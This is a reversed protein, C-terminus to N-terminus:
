HYSAVRIMHPATAPTQPSAQATGGVTLAALPATAAVTAAVHLLRRRTTAETRGGASWLSANTLM